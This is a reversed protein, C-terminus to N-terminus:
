RVVDRRILDLITELHVENEEEPKAYILIDDIFVIIFKDLYPKCVHNMLDMFIAPANTLGFPMVTFEFHGYRTRFATKPIDEERVRLQHYGLRLDIKSFLLVCRLRIIQYLCSMLEPSLTFPEKYDVKYEWIRKRGRLDGQVELIKGYPLPICVIKEYCDILARHYALCDMGIIVDFSGTVVNPNQQLNEIVVYARGHAGKNQQNRARPYKDKFHGKEGCGFCTVNQLFNDGANQLRARCDKELHGMRQCRQCKPPCLGHHHLNCRNCKPLNGAYVKGEAPAAAYAKVNETSM